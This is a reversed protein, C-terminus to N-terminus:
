ELNSSYRPDFPPPGYAHSPVDLEEEAKYSAQSYKEQAHQDFAQSNSVTNSGTSLSQSQDFQELQTQGKELIQHFRKWLLIANGRGNPDDSLMPCVMHRLVPKTIYDGLRVEGKELLRNHMIEVTRLTTQGDHFPRGDQSTNKRAVEQQRKDRYEALGSMGLVVWTAAESCVGGLSWIDM